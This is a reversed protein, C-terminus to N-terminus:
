KLSKPMHGCPCKEGYSYTCKQPKVDPFAVKLSSKVLVSTVGKQGKFVCSVHRHFRCLVEHWSEPLVIPINPCKKALM